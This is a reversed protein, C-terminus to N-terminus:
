SAAKERSPKEGMPWSQVWERLENVTLVPRSTPWSRLLKGQGIARDIVDRSVGCAAAAEDLTYALKDM